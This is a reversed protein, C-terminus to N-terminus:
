ADIYSDCYPCRGTYGKMAKFSAGCHPCEAAIYDIKEPELPRNDMLQEEGIIKATSVSNADFSYKGEYEFIEITAGIPYTTSGKPFRTPLVAERITHADDFFRVKTNIPYQGNVTISSDEVYGCIKAAYQKGANKIKKERMIAVVPIALIGLGIFVFILPFFGIPMGFIPIFVASIGGGILLFMGGIFGLIYREMHMM